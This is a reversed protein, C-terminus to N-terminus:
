YNGQIILKKNATIYYGNSLQYRTTLNHKVIKKVTLRASKKYHKAKNTLSANKYANVGKKAIVTVKKNKPMSSYYVKVVYHKNATIYGRKNATKTGHNVDKVKYRLTGNKTHAYGTVVFMPRNVRKAKPYKALRQNKNFTANKYLYISKTAYVVTGKAPLNSISSTTTAPKNPETTTSGSNGTTSSSSNSSSSNANTSNSGNTSPVVITGSGGGGNNPTVPSTKAPIKVNFTHTITQDVGSTVTFSLTKGAEAANDLGTIKGTSDIKVNADGGAWTPEIYVTQNLQLTKAGSPATISSTTTSDTIATPNGADFAYSYSFNPTYKGDNSFFAYYTGTLDTRSAVPTIKVVLVDGSKLTSIGSISSDKPDIQLNNNSVFEGNPDYEKAQTTIADTYPYITGNKFVQGNSPYLLLSDVTLTKGAYEPSDTNDTTLQVSKIIPAPQTLSNTKNYFNSDVYDTMLTGNEADPITGWFQLWWQTAAKDGINLTAEAAYATPVPGGVIPTITVAIGATTFALLGAYLFPLIKSKKM